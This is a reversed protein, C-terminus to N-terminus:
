GGNKAKAIARRTHAPLYEGYRKQWDPILYDHNTVRGRCLPSGCRCAMEMPVAVETMSYDYTIEEGPQIDRRAVMTEDDLWWTNPDCSHNMFRGEDQESVCETESTQYSHILFAEQQEPPWSLVQSILTRPAEPPLTSIVEGAKILGQAILGQGEIVGNNILVVLPHLM